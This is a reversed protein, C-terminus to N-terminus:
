VAQAHSSGGVPEIDLDAFTLIPEYPINRKKFYEAASNGRDVLTTAFVVRGGDDEVHQCAKHISDGRTVVDDVVMVPMGRTIRVGETWRNTGRGKPEKRVLFWSKRAVTAVAFTFPAAGVLLGGVADFEVGADTAAKLMAKGAIEFTRPDAVALKGDIFDYSLDGSTLRIQESLRLLVGDRHLVVDRLHSRYQDLSPSTELDASPFPGDDHALARGALRSM